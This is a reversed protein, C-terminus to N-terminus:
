ASLLNRLGTPDLITIRAYDTELVGKGRLDSLVTNLATRGLNVLGALEQQRIFLDVPTTHAGTSFTQDHESLRGVRLHFVRRRLDRQAHAIRLQFPQM